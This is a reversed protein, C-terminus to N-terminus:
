LRKKRGREGHCGVKNVYGRTVELSVVVLCGDCTFKEILSSCNNSFNFKICTSTLRCTQKLSSDIYNM